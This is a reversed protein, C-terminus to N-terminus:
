SNSTTNPKSTNRRTRFEYQRWEILYDNYTKNPNAAKWIHFAINDAPPYSPFLIDLDKFSQVKYGIIIDDNDKM